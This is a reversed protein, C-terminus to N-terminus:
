NPAGYGMRSALEQALDAVSAAYFYSRNYHTIAFFNPTACRVEHTGRIEDRLDIVGLQQAQWATGGGPLARAGAARLAAWDTEPKLGDQARRVADAPLAELAASLAPLGAEDGALLHWDAAPDPAYAGGPGMLRVTDGPKVERAPKVEFRAAIM